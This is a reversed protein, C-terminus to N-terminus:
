GPKHIRPSTRSVDVTACHISLCNPVGAYFALLVQGDATRCIAPHGFSWRLMDDWYESYDIESSGQSLAAQEHHQYVLLSDDAPWTRGEDSSQWLKMTMPGSRDVVFALLRGDPLMLPAAIQGTIGTDTIVAATQSSNLSFRSMHVSLDREDRLDHTWFLAISDDDGSGSCVRQDWYYIRNEPHRAVLFPAGFSKGGDSSVMLWAGHEAPEPDDFEKYSEFALGIRGDSWQRIPGTGSCGSLNPTSIERWDSWTTGDDLSEALLQRSHLIGQTEPDFLPRDPDSRDFWTAYLLLHQPSVEVIEGSSLSGPVGSLETQFVAPLEQWSHGNDESRCFRITSTVAHKAPGLQFGCVLAGSSLRRLSVFSAVQEDAPRRSADYIITQSNLKM